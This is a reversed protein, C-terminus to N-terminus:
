PLACYETIGDQKEKQIGLGRALSEREHLGDFERGLKVVFPTQIGAL